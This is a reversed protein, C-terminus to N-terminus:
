GASIIVQISMAHIKIYICQDNAHIWIKWIYVTHVVSATLVNLYESAVQVNVAWTSMWAWPYYMWPCRSTHQVNHTAGWCNEWCRSRCLAQTSVHLWTRGSMHVFLRRRRRINFTWHQSNFLARSFASFSSWDYPPSFEPQWRANHKFLLLSSLLLNIGPAQIITRHMIMHLLYGGPSPSGPIRGQHNLVKWPQFDGVVVLQCQSCPFIYYSDYSCKPSPLLYCDLALTFLYM